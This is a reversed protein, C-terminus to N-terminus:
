AIIKASVYSAVASPDHTFTGSGLFKIRSSSFIVGNINCGAGITVNGKAIILVKSLSVNSELTVSNNCIIVLRGTSRFKSKFVLENKCALLADGKINPATSNYTFTKAESLYVFKNSFGNANLTNMDIANYARESLFSIDPMLFSGGSTYLNGSSLFETGTPMYKSIFMYNNGQEVLNHSPCFSFQRIGRSSDTTTLFISKEIFINDSSAAKNGTIMYQEKSDNEIHNFQFTSSSDPSNFFVEALSNCLHQQKTEEAYSITRLYDNKLYHLMIQIIISLFFLGVLFTLSFSGKCKNM